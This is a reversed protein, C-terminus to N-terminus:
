TELLDQNKDAIAQLDENEELHGNVKKGCKIRRYNLFYNEGDRRARLNVCYLEYMDTSMDESTLDDIM